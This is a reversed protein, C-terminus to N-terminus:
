GVDSGVDSNFDEEIEIEEKIKVFGKVVWVVGEFEKFCVWGYGKCKGFDEFIVFKVWEIEGCKEFNCRFDDEMIKFGMNGVFIKCSVDKKEVDEVVIIELEFEKKFWGEFLIFDKILFKCGGFEVEFFVVVVVKLLFDVFDVYVFGKNLVVINM